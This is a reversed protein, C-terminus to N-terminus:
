EHCKPIESDAETGWTSLWNKVETNTLHLNTEQHHSWSDLAEQKFNEKLEEHDVYQRIAECMIWHPSRHKLHALHKIKGKLQDDIKISSAM